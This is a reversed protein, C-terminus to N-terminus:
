LRITPQVDGIIIKGMKRQTFCCDINWTYKNWTRFHHGWEWCQEDSNQSNILWTCRSFYTHLLLDSIHIFTFSWYCPLLFCDSVIGGDEVFFPSLLLFIDLDPYTLLFKFLSVESYLAPTPETYLLYKFVLKSHGSRISCIFVQM